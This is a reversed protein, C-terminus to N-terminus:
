VFRSTKTDAYKRKGAMLREFANVTQTTTKKVIDSLSNKANKQCLLDVRKIGMDTVDKITSQPHISIAEEKHSIDTTGTVSIQYKKENVPPHITELVNGVCRTAPQPCIETKAPGHDCKKIAICVLVTKDSLLM